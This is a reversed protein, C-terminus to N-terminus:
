HTVVKPQLRPVGPFFFTNTVAPLLFYTPSKGFIGLRKPPLNNTTIQESVILTHWGNTRLKFIQGVFFYDSQMVENASLTGRRFPRKINSKLQSRIMEVRGLQDRLELDYRLETPEFQLFLKNSGTNQVYVNCEPSQSQTWKEGTVVTLGLRVGNTAAGWMPESKAQYPLILFVAVLVAQFFAAQVIAGEMIMVIQM